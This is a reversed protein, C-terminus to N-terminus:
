GLARLQGVRENRYPAHIVALTRIRGSEAKKTLRPVTSFLIGGGVLHLTVGLLASSFATVGDAMWLSICLRWLFLAGFFLMAIGVVAHVGIVLWCRVSKM